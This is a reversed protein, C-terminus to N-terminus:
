SGSGNSGGASPRASTQQLVGREASVSSRQALGRLISVAADVTPLERIQAAVAAAREAYRPETLVDRVADAVGHITRLAIGAGYEHIRSANDPQDAFLPHVVVPVADALAGRVTGSGGHCVIAAAHPTIQAQPIWREVHVNGPVPGLDDPDRDRGITVLLRVPLPALADIAERFLGPFFDRQPAISGFTVYVLPDGANPWWDPLAPAAGADRERFRMVGAPGLLAPDELLAPMLTFRAAQDRPARLGFAARLEGLAARATAAVRHEIAYQSLAVTALPLGHHAAALTGAFESAETLVVDPQWRECADLVGPLAARADIDVFVRAAVRNAEDRPAGNLSAFIADREGPLADAVTWVDLGAARVREASSARTAVLVEDGADILAEAFPILPGLHGASGTTTVLVRV